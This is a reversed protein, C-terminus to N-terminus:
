ILGVPINEQNYSYALNSLGGQGKVKFQWYTEAQIAKISTKEM